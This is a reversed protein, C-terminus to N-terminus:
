GDPPLIRNADLPKAATTRAVYLLGDFDERPTTPLLNAADRTMADCDTPVSYGGFWRQGHGTCLWQQVADDKPAGRLDLLLRDHGAAGLTWELSGEPAASLRYRRFGWKGDDGPANAQFEGEGFAVGLAYYRNGLRKTLHGGMALDTSGLYRLPGLQIHANHAWVVCRSEAGSQELQQLLLEAMAEDRGGHSSFISLSFLFEAVRLEYEAVKAPDTPIRKQLWTRLAEVEKAVDDWKARNGAMLAGIAEKARPVLKQVQSVTDADDDEILQILRAEAADSDQADIGILRVKDPSRLNWERLDDLLAGNEEIQWILMGLGGMAQRRDDSNGAVYENAELVKSASAEYAVLRVGHRKILHMTLQRKIEFVEHQGHTAEGIAIVRAQAFPEEMSGFDDQSDVLPVASQRIWDKVRSSDQPWAQALPLLCGSSFVWAIWYFYRSM